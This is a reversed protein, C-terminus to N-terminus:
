WWTLYCMVRFNYLCKAIMTYSLYNSYSHDLIDISRCGPLKSIPLWFIRTGMSQGNLIKMNYTVIGIVMHKCVVPIDTGLCIVSMTISEIANPQFYNWSNGIIWLWLISLNSM